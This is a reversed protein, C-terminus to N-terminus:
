PWVNCGIWDGIEIDKWKYSCWGNKNNRCRFCKIEKLKM